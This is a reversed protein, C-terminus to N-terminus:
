RQDFRVRVYAGPADDVVGLRAGPVRAAVM